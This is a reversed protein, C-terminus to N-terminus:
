EDCNTALNYQVHKAATIDDHKKNGRSVYVLEFPKEDPLVLYFSPTLYKKRMEEYDWNFHTCMASLIYENEAKIIRTLVDEM